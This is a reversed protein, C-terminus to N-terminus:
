VRRHNKLCFAANKVRDGSSSRSRWSPTSLSASANAAWFEGGSVVMTFDPGEEAQYNIGFPWAQFPSGYKQMKQWYSEQGRVQRRMIRSIPSLRPMTHLIGRLQDLDESSLTPSVRLSLQAQPQMSQHTDGDSLSLVWIVPRDNFQRYWERKMREVEWDDDM